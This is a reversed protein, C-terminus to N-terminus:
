KQTLYHILFELLILLVSNIKKFIIITTAINKRILYILYQDCIMLALTSFKNFNNSFFYYTANKITLHM